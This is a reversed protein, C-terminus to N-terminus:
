VKQTQQEKKKDKGDFRALANKLLSLMPIEVTITLYFGALICIVFLGLFIVGINIVSYYVDYSRSNVYCSIIIFHLLYTSYSVKAIYNLM